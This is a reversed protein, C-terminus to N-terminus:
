LFVQSFEAPLHTSLDLSDRLNKPLVRLNKRSRTSASVRVDCSDRGLSTSFRRTSFEQRVHRACHSVRSISMGPMGTPPRGSTEQLHPFDELPESPEPLSRSFFVHQLHLLCGLWVFYAGPTQLVSTLYHWKRYHITGPPPFLGPHNKWDQLLPVKAQAMWYPNFFNVIQTYTIFHTLLSKPQLSVLTKQVLDYFRITSVACVLSASNHMEESPLQHRM